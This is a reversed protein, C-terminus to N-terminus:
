EQFHFDFKRDNMSAFSKSIQSSKVEYEISKSNGLPRDLLHFYCSTSSHIFHAKM